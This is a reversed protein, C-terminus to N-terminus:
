RILLFYQHTDNRVKLIGDVDNAALNSEHLSRKLEELRNHRYRSDYPNVVLKETYNVYDQPPSSDNSFQGVFVASNLGEESEKVDIKTATQSVTRHRYSSSRSELFTGLLPENNGRFNNKLLFDGLLIREHDQNKSPHTEDTMTVTSPCNSINRHVHLQEKDEDLITHQAAHSLRMPIEYGKFLIKDFESLKDKRYTNSLTNGRTFDSSYIRRHNLYSAIAEKWWLTRTTKHNECHLRVRTMTLSDKSLDVSDTSCKPDGITMEKIENEDKEETDNVDLDTPFNHRYFNLSAVSEKGTKVHLNHLYYDNELEWLPVSHLSPVYYGLFLNIADQKLRDTFANSYYRRISTM